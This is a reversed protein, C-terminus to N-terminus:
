AELGKKADDIKGAQLLAVNSFYKAEYIQSPDPAPQISKDGDAVASLYKLADDTRGAVMNLKGMMVHVRPMVTSDANDLDELFKLAPDVM